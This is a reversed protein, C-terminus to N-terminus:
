NFKAIQSSIRYSARLSYKNCYAETACFSHRLIVSCRPNSPVEASWWTCGRHYLLSGAPHVPLCGPLHQIGRSFPATPSQIGRLFMPHCLAPVFSGRHLNQPHHQPLHATRKGKDSMQHSSALLSCFGPVTTCILSNDKSNRCVTIRGWSQERSEWGLNKGQPEVNRPSRMANGTVALNEAGRPQKHILRRVKVGM